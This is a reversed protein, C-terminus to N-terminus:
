NSVETNSKDRSRAGIWTAITQETLTEGDGSM